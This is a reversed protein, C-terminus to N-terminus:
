YMFVYPSFATPPRLIHFAAAASEEEGNLSTTTTTDHHLLTSLSFFFNTVERAYGDVYTGLYRGLM